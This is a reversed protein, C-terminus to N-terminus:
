RADSRNNHRVPVTGDPQRQSNTFDNFMTEIESAIEVPTHGQAVNRRLTVNLSARVVDSLSAFGYHRRVADIETRLSHDVRISIVPM